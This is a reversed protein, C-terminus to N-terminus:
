LHLLKFFIIKISFDILFIGPFDDIGVESLVAEDSLLDVGEVSEELEMDLIDDFLM